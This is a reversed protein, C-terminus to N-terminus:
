FEASLVLSSGRVGARWRTITGTTREHTPSSLALYVTAGAAIVAAGALGDTVLALTKLQHRRNDMRSTSGPFHDLERDLRRDAQLTLLGFTVAGGTLLATAGLGLWTGTSVGRETNSRPARPSASPTPLPAERELQLTLSIPEGGPVSLSKVATRYGAKRASIQRVGSNIWLPAKLPTVGAVVGDVMLEAGAVDLTVRLEAVRKQLAQQDREVEARREASIESGGQALYERLLRLAEVSDHREMQTQALNYLIRYSPALEYARTFEALAAEFNGDKYLEVGRQFRERAQEVNQPSVPTSTVPPPPMVSNSPASDAALASNATSSIALLPLLRTLTRVSM